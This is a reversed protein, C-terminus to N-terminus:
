EFDLMWRYGTWYLPPKQYYEPYDVGPKVDPVPPLVALEEETYEDFRKGIEIGEYIKENGAM